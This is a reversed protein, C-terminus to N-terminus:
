TKAIEQLKAILPEAAGGAQAGQYGAEITKGLARLIVDELFTVDAMDCDNWAMSSSFEVDGREDVVAFNLKVIKKM